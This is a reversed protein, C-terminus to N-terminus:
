ADTDSDSDWEADCDVSDEAETEFANNDALKDDKKEEISTIWEVMDKWIIWLAAWLLLLSM